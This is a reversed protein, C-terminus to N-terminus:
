VTIQCAVETSVWLVSPLKWNVTARYVPAM